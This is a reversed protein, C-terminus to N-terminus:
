TEQSKPWHRALAMMEHFVEKPQAGSLTFKEDFIYFPVGRIDRRRSEQEDELVEKILDEGAFLTGLAESPLGVEKALSMLITPDGIDYGDVFYARFLAEVYTDAKGEREALLAARHCLLTNPTREIRDFNFQLNLDHGTEIIKNQLDQIVKESGFKIKVYQRRTIGGEPLGPNLRFCRWRLVIDSRVGGNESQLAQDLKAKGIYCWPCTPDFFIDIKM